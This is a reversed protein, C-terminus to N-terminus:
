TINHSQKSRQLEAIVDNFNAWSITCRKSENNIENEFFAVKFKSDLTKIKTMHVINNRDVLRFQFGSKCLGELYFKLTGQMYYVQELTHIHLRSTFRVFEIFLIDDVDLTTFGELADIDRAVTIQM